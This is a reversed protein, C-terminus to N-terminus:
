SFLRGFGGSVATRSHQQDGTARWLAMGSAERAPAGKEAFDPYLVRNSFSAIMDVDITGHVSCSLTEAHKRTGPTDCFFRCFFALDHLM